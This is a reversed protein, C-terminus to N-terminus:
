IKPLLAALDRIMQLNLSNLAKPKNLVIKPLGNGEIYDINSASTNATTSKSFILQNTLNILRRSTTNIM